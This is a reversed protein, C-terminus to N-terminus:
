KKRKGGNETLKKIEEYILKNADLDAFHSIAEGMEACLAPDAILRGVERVLRGDGLEKEEILVNGGMDEIVKANKYQHNNTVNPSPIMISTKRLTALESVTMAGARSIVIDAAAMQLPMDYIYEVLKLNECKDLGFARFQASSAEWEIAGTAHLHYVDPHSACFDRMLELCAENVKEAGLSGGYSLIFTKYEDPIGLKKRAEARGCFGFGARLPNGVHMIKEKETLYQASEEFNLFIRDVYPQLKRVAVGPYANSEHVATPIGLRSAAVLVPWCVYGGTGIAIDPKFEKVIKEARKPSVLALYAAKINKLSLSRRFGLVEVHRIPYGAAGTLKNEIGTKTGVFLIESNPDNRKITDAIALAPNVHGGTGGGTMIVRM